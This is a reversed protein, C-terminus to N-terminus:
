LESTKIWTLAEIEGYNFETMEHQAMPSSRTAPMRLSNTYNSASFLCLFM